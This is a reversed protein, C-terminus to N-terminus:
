CFTTRGLQAKRKDTTSLLLVGKLKNMDCVKALEAEFAEMGPRFAQIFDPPGLSDGMLSGTKPVFVMHGDPAEMEFHAHEQCLEFLRYDQPRAYDQKMKTLLDRDTSRFANRTDYITRMASLKALRLRDVM